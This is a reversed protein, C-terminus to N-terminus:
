PVSSSSPSSRRCEVHYVRWMGLNVEPENGSLWRAPYCLLQLRVAFLVKADIAVVYQDTM